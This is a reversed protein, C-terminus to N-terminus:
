NWLRQQEYGAIQTLLTGCYSGLCVQYFQVQSSDSPVVSPPTSVRGPSFAHDSAGYENPDDPQYAASSDSLYNQFSAGHYSNTFPQPVGQMVHANHSQALNQWQQPTWGSFFTGSPPLLSSALGSFDTNGNEVPNQQAM